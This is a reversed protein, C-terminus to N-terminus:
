DMWKNQASRYNAATGQRWSSTQLRKRFAKCDAWRGSITWWAALRLNRVQPHPQRRPEVVELSPPLAPHINVDGVASSLVGLGEMCSGGPHHPTRPASLHVSSVPGGSSVPPLPTARRPEPTTGSGAAVCGGGGGGGDGVCLLLDCSLFPM